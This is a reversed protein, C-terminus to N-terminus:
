DVQLAQQEVIFDFALETLNKDDVEVRWPAHAEDDLPYWAYPVGTRDYESKLEEAQTFPVTRDRRGHIISIPADTADFRAGPTMLELARVIGTGGWHDIITRISSSQDLHTGALTADDEESVENVCDDENTVGLAVAIFSGASGGLATIYDTNISYEAARSRIWRIAAKADRCAPYFAYWQDLREMDSVEIPPEPYNPPLTGHHSLVRYDISFAVWGRSAFSRAMEQFEPKKHSGGRFGGGHIFVIVPMKPPNDRVPQYVDLLLDMPMSDASRWDAHALGQAYVLDETVEVEFTGEAHIRGVPSVIGGDADEHGGDMMEHGGDEVLHGGDLAVHGGDLVENGGDLTEPGGDSVINGVDLAGNGGDAVEIAGDAGDDDQSASECGAMVVALLALFYAIPTCRRM